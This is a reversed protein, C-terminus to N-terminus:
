ALAQEFASLTSGERDLVAFAVAEFARAFAGNGRLFQAFLNAVTAPDNKFVGCGWAGLVLATQGEVVAASLIQEMRTRLTSEIEGLRHPENKAVAGANPAPSTIFTMFWPEELLQDEDDRFVPVMPSVIMHDTYLCTDCARNADYYPQQTSLTAYLASARALSEEQAQSGGLFGGGPNKASAFNLAAVRDPGFREVLRKGAALTTENRVEFVTDFSREALLPEARSRLARADRPTILLTRHVADDLQERFSVERGTPSFYVGSQGIAVTESAIRARTTRKSM